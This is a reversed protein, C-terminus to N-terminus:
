FLGELQCNRRMEAESVNNIATQRQMTERLQADTRTLLHAWLDDCDSQYFKSKPNFEAVLLDYCDILLTRKPKKSTAM